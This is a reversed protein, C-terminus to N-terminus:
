GLTTLWGSVSRPRRLMQFHCLPVKPLAQAQHYGQVALFHGVVTVHLTRFGPTDNRRNVMRAFENRTPLRPVVDAPDVARRVSGTISDVSAGLGMREFADEHCRDVIVDRIASACSLIWSGVRLRGEPDMCRMSTKEIRIQTKLAKFVCVDLIQLLWTLKAPILLVLIGLRRLYRAVDENLHTQSCDWVLLIWADPNFSHVISHMRVAWKKFIASTAFGRTRHWYELPEGSRACANVLHAPPTANQTYRALVIQPLYPQLDRNDCVTALLTTKTNSRDAVDGHRVTPRGRSARRCTRMGKGQGEVSSLSTEDMNLVVYSRGNLVTEFAYRVWQLYTLAQPVSYRCLYCHATICMTKQMSVVTCLSM